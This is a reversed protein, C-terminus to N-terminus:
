SEYKAKLRKYTAKDQAEKAKEQRKRENAEDLAKQIRAAEALAEQVTKDYELFDERWFYELPFEVLHTDPSCCSCRREEFFAEVADGSISYGSYCETTDRYEIIKRSDAVAISVERAIRDLEDKGNMASRIQLETM